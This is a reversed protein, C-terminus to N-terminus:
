SDPVEHLLGKQALGERLSELAYRMRSKATNVTCGVIEAIEAFPLEGHERLLLVERQEKPLKAILSEVLVDLEERYLAQAPDPQKAPLTEELTREREVGEEVPQSLSTLHAKGAKRLADVSVNHAIRFVWTSFRSRAKFSSRARIVRLFTEQFLDEAREVGVLRILYGYVSKRYRALLMEFAQVDGEAYQLMLAEDSPRNEAMDKEPSM